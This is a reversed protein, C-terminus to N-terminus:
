PRQPKKTKEKGEQASNSKPQPAPKDPKRKEKDDTKRRDPNREQSQAPPATAAPPKQDEAPVTTAPEAKKPEKPPKVLKGEKYQLIDKRVGKKTYTTVNGHLAGNQYQLIARVKGNPFYDTALGNLTGNVFNRESIINGRKDFLTTKGHRLGANWWSREQQQGNLYWFQWLSDQLGDFYYGSQQLRDHSQWECYRGHKVDRESWMDHYFEYKLRLDGETPGYEAHARIDRSQASACPGHILTCLAICWGALLQLYLTRHRHFSFDRPQLSLADSPQPSHACPERLCTTPTSEM